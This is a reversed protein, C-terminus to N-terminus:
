ILLERSFRGARSPFAKRVSQGDPTFYDARGNKDTYRIAQITRGNNNFEAAIIEGNSVYEGDQYIQEFLVYYDDGSRIDLVFDVDWAFIGALNM